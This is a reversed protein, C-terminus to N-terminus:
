LEALARRVVAQFEARANAPALVLRAARMDSRPRFAKLTRALVNKAADTLQSDHGHALELLRLKEVHALDETLIAKLMDFSWSQAAQPADLAIGAENERRGWAAGFPNLAHVLVLRAGKPLAINADLLGTLLFSEPCIDRGDSGAIVLLAKKAERPGLALCDMFLPNGRPGTAAPHVRAISDAHAGTCAAIFAKRATRYDKPIQAEAKM